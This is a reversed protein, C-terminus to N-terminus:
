NRLAPLLAELRHRWTHAALVRARAAEGAARLEEPRALLARVADGLEAPRKLSYFRMSGDPFERELYGAANTFCVAGNIAYNFVRDNAGDLYTSADLCTKAQGALALFGEYDVPPTRAVNPPLNAAEWGSGVVRMDVGSRALAVVADRRFAARLHWEVTRLHNYFYSDQPLPGFARVAEAVSLHLSREPQALVADAIADRFAAEARPLGASPDRWPRSLARADLNGVYLVDITRAAPSPWSRDNQRRAAPPAFIEGALHLGPYVLRAQASHGLDPYTAFTRRARIAHILQNYPHDFLMGAWAMDSNEFFPAAARDREPFPRESLAAGWCCLDLLVDSDGRSVHRWLERMDHETAEGIAAFSPVGAQHGLEGLAETIGKHFDSYFGAGPVGRCFPM